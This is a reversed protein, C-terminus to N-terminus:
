VRIDLARDSITMRIAATTSIDGADTSLNTRARGRGSSSFNRDDDDRTNQQHSNLSFSLSGSDTKLGADQLARELTGQEKQLLQLTKENDAAVVANIRGDSAIELKVDIRGLEPPDLRIKFNDNGDKIARSIQMGVQGAVYAGFPAWNPTSTSSRLASAGTSLDALGSGRIVAFGDTAEITDDFQGDSAAFAKQLNLALETAANATPRKSDASPATSDVRPKTTVDHTNESKSAAKSDSAAVTPKGKAERLLSKRDTRNDIQHEAATNSKIQTQAAINSAATSPAAEPAAAPTEMTTAVVPAAAKLTAAILSAALQQGPTAHPHVTDPAADAPSALVDSATEDPLTNEAIEQHAPAARSAAITTALDSATAGTVQEAAAPLAAIVMLFPILTEALAASDDEPIDDTPEDSLANDIPLKHPLAIEAPKALANVPGLNQLSDKFSVMQETTVGLMSALKTMDVAGDTSVAGLRKALTDLATILAKGDTLNPPTIASQPLIMTGLPSTAVPDQMTGPTTGELAAAASGQASTLAALISAFKQQVQGGNGKLAADDTTQEGSKVLSGLGALATGGISAFLQTLLGITM